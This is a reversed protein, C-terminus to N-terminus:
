LILKVSIWKHLEAVQNESLEGIGYIFVHTYNGGDIFYKLKELSIHHYTPRSGADRFRKLTIEDKIELISAKMTLINERTKYPERKNVWSWICNNWEEFDEYWEVNLNDLDSIEIQVDTLNELMDKLDM